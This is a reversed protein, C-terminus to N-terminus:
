GGRGKHMRFIDQVIDSAVPKQSAFFLYYLDANKHNKMPIPEPVYAFRAIRQLRDRFGRVIASNPLKLRDSGGFLDAQERYAVSEWSDDGWFANMRSRGQAPTRSAARWLANRNIDMVPFNIFLDITGSHGAAQIVEWDLQLGYPDLLCLGRRFDEYRVQPFVDRLLIENCNGQLIHVDARNRIEPFQGLQSTKDGDLDIFFLEKFAPKIGLAVLPSGPILAGDERSRHIGSSAFGDIYVHHLGRASMITSYARAYKELIDLKTASWYGIDDHILDDSYGPM